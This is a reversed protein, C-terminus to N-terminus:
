GARRRPGNFRSFGTPSSTLPKIKQEGVPMHGAPLMGHEKLTAQKQELAKWMFGRKSGRAAKMAPKAKATTKMKAKTKPKAQPKSKKPM